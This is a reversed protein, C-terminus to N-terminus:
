RLAALVNRLLDEKSDFSVQQFDGLNMKEKELSITIQSGLTYHRYVLFTKNNDRAIQIEKKLERSTEIGNTAILLFKKSKKISENRTRIWTQKGKFEKPIDIIDLFASIHERELGSKLHRAFDLGTDKRYAIFVAYSKAWYPARGEGSKQAMQEMKWDHDKWDGTVFEYIRKMRDEKRGGVTIDYWRCVEKLEEDNMFDLFDYLSWYAEFRLRDILEDITGSVTLDISHLAEKLAQKDFWVRIFKRLNMDLIRHYRSLLM